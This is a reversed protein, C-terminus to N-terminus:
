IGMRLTSSYVDKKMVAKRLSTYAEQNFEKKEM